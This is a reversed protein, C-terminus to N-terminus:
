RMDTSRKKVQAELDHHSRNLTDLREDIQVRRRLQSVQAGAKELAATLSTTDHTAWTPACVSTCIIPRRSRPPWVVQWRAINGTCNASLRPRRDCNPSPKRRFRSRRCPRPRILKRRCRAAPHKGHPKGHGHHTSGHTTRRPAPNLPRKRTISRRYTRWSTELQRAQADLAAIWQQQEALAELRPAQRCLAENIKLREVETMLQQRRETIRTLRRRRTERRNKLEALRTLSDDALHPVPELAKRRRDIEQRQHWRPEIQAAAALVRLRQDLEAEEAELAQAGRNLDDYKKATALYEPTSRRLDHIESRLRQQQEALDVLQCPRDGDALLQERSKQLQGVVDSLSVRDGGLTLEYLLDAAASDSITALEQIERLGFAFVNNFVSEDVGELLRALGRVQRRQGSRDVM